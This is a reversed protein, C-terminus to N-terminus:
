YVYRLPRTFACCLHRYVNALPLPLAFTTHVRLTPLIHLHVRAFCFITVTSYLLSSTAVFSRWFTILDVADVLTWLRTRHLRLRPLGVPQLM